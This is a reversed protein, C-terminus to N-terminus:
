LRRLRPLGDGDLLRHELEMTPVSGGESRAHRQLRAPLHRPEVVPGDCFTVAREVVNELERVNGPFPYARLLSATRPHLEPTPRGLRVAHRRLFRVALM